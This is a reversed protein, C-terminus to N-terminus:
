SEKSLEQFVAELALILKAELETANRYIITRWNRIDFELVTEKRATQIVRKGRGRAYGLEFYVNAPKLTFDAIVVDAENIRDMTAQSIEFDGQLQDMRILKIPLAKANVAREMASYYDVLAPEEENRFSMAVFATYQRQKAEGEIRYGRVKVASSEIATQFPKASEIARSKVNIGGKRKFIEGKSTMVPSLHAPAKSAFIYIIKKFNLDLEGIDVPFSFLSSSIRSLRSAVENAEKHTLGEVAGKDGVGFLLAGGSTNAFATLTQAIAEDSQSIGKMFALTESEGTSILELLKDPNTEIM